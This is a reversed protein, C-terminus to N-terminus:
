TLVEMEIQVTVKTTKLRSSSSHVYTETSVTNPAQAKASPIENSTATAQKPASLFALRSDTKALRTPETRVPSERVTSTEENVTKRQVNTLSSVSLMRLVRNTNITNNSAFTKGRNTPKLFVSQDCNYENDVDHVPPRLGIMKLVALRFQKSFIAYLFPNVVPHLIMCILATTSLSNYQSHAHETNTYVVVVFPLWVLIFVVVLSVLRLMAICERYKRAQNLNQQSACGSNSNIITNIEVTDSVRPVSFMSLGRIPDLVALAVIGDTRIDKKRNKHLQSNIDGIRRAHTKAVRIITGYCVVMTLVPVVYLNVILFIGYGKHYNWSVFCMFLHGEVKISSWETFLPVTTNLFSISYVCFLLTGIYKHQSWSTYRLCHVIAMFRDGAIAAVLLVSCNAFFLM